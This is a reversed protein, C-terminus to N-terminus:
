GNCFDETCPNDPSEQCSSVCIGNNCCKGPPCSVVCQGDDCCQGLQSCSECDGYYCTTCSPCNGVCDTAYSRQVLLVSSLTMACIILQQGCAIAPHLKFNGSMQEGRGSRKGEGNREM